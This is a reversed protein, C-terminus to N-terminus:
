ALEARAIGEANRTVKVKVRSPIAHNGREWVAENVNNDIKVDVAKMHRLLFEQIIKVAANARRGRPKIKAKRLPITYVRTLEEAM